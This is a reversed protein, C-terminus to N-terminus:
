SCYKQLGSSCPDWTTLLSELLPWSISKAHYGVDMRVITRGDMIRSMISVRCSRVYWFKLIHPLISYIPAHLIEIMMMMMVMMMMMM